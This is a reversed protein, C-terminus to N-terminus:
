QMQINASHKKKKKQRYFKNKHFIGSPFFHHFAHHMHIFSLIDNFLYGFHKWAYIRSTKIDKSKIKATKEYQILSISNGYGDSQLM